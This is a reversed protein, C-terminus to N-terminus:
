LEYQQKLAAALDFCANKLSINQERMKNYEYTTKAEQKHTVEWLKEDMEEYMRELKFLMRKRMYEPMELNEIDERLTTERVANEM